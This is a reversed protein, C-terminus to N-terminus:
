REGRRGLRGGVAGLLAALVAYGALTVPTATSGRLLADTGVVVVTLLAAFSGHLERQDTVLKATTLGAVFLGGVAGIVVGLSFPDTVGMAGAALSAVLGALVTALLGAAGGIL